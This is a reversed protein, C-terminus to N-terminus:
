VTQRQDYLRAPPECDSIMSPLLSLKCVGQHSSVYHSVSRCFISMTPSTYMTAAATTTATAATCLVPLVCRIAVSGRSSRAVAVTLMCLIPSTRGHPKRSIRAVSLCVSLYGCWCAGYFRCYCCSAYTPLLRTGRPQVFESIDRASTQLHWLHIRASRTTSAVRQRNHKYSM